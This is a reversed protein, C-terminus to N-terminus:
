LHLLLSSSISETPFTRFPLAFQHPHQPHGRHFGCTRLHTIRHQRPLFWLSRTVLVITAFLCSADPSRRCLSRFVPDPRPRPALRSVTRPLIPTGYSLIAGPAVWLRGRPDTTQPPNSRASCVTVSLVRRTRHEPRPTIDAQLYDDHETKKRLSLSRPTPIHGQRTDPTCPGTIRPRPLPRTAATHVLIPHSLRDSPNCMMMGSTPKKSGDPPIRASANAGGSSWDNSEVAPGDIATDLKTGDASGLPESPHDECNGGDSRGDRWGFSQLEKTPELHRESCPQV